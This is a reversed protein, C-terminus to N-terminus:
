ICLETRLRDRGYKTKNTHVTITLAKTKNVLKQPSPVLKRFKQLKANCEEISYQAGRRIRGRKEERPGSEQQQCCMVCQQRHMEQRLPGALVHFDQTFIM